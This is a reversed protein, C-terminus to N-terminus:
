DMQFVQAYKVIDIRRLVFVCVGYEPKSRAVAAAVVTVVTVEVM